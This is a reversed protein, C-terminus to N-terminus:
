MKWFVREVTSKRSRSYSEQRRSAAILCVTFTKDCLLTNFNLSCALMKFMLDVDYKTVTLKRCLQTNSLQSLSILYSSSVRYILSYLQKPDSLKMGNIEIMQYDYDGDNIHKLVDRVTATKGSM